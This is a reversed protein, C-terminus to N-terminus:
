AGHTSADNSIAFGDGATAEQFPNGEGGGDARVRLIWITVKRRGGAPAVASGKDPRFGVAIKMAVAPAQDEKSIKWGEERGAMIAGIRLQREEKNGEM